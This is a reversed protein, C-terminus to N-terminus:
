CVKSINVMTFALSHTFQSFMNEDERYIVVFDKSYCIGTENLM